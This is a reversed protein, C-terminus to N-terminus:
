GDEHTKGNKLVISCKAFIGVRDLVEDGIASHTQLYRLREEYTNYTMLERYTKM